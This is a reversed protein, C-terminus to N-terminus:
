AASPRVSASIAQDPLYFQLAVGRHRNKGLAPAVGRIAHRATKLASPTLVNM